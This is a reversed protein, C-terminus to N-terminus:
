KRFKNFFQQIFNAKAGAAPAGISFTSKNKKLAELAAMARSNGADWRLIDEYMKRANTKSGIMEFIFAMNFKFELNYPELDMARQAADLARTASKKSQILAAALRAHYIGETDNNQIAAEFFEIAQTYNHEKVCQMGRAFAKQAIAVKEPTIGLQPRTPGASAAHPSAKPQPVGRGASLVAATATKRPAAPAAHNGAGGQARKDYEARKGSDKLTNYAASVQAFRKEFDKTEEASSAKDPHLERALRHYANKIEREDADTPIQLIEYFNDSMICAM